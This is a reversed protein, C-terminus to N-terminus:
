VEWNIVDIQCAQMVAMAADHDAKELGACGKADCVIKTNPLAARLLIANSVVCISSVFGVIEIEEINPATMLAIAMEMSGFTYKTYVWKDGYPIDDAATLVDEQLNWGSTGKICHPIPLKKGELSNQYVGEYHTDQTFIVTDGNEAAQRIKEVIYPVRKEAEPNALAGTIFDNQVDICILVKM